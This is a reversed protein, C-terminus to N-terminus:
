RMRLGNRTPAGTLLVGKPARAGLRSYKGPDRLFDVVESIEAKVEDSGAVDDFTVRITEPDIRKRAGGGVLGGLASQQRRFMWFYFGFL